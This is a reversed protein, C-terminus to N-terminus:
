VILQFSILLIDEDGVKNRLQDVEHEQLRYVILITVKKTLIQLKCSPQRFKKFVFYANMKKSIM